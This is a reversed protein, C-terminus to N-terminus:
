LWGCGDLTTWTLEYTGASPFGSVVANASNMPTITVSSSTSWTGDGIAAMTAQGDEYCDVTQDPGAEADETVSIMVVNSTNDCSIPDNTISYVRRFWHDGVTLLSVDYDRQDNPPPAPSFSM